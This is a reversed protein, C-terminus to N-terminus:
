TKKGMEEMARGTLPIVSHVWGNAKALVLIKRAKKPKAPAKAPLASMMKDVDDPCAVRPQSSRGGCQPGAAPAQPAPAPQQGSLGVLSGGVLAAVCVGLMACDKARKGTM